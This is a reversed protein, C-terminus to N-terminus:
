GTCLRYSSCFQLNNEPTMRPIQLWPLKAVVLCVEFSSQEQPLQM